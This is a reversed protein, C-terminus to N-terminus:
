GEALLRAHLWGFGSAVPWNPTVSPITSVFSVSQISSPNRLCTSLIGLGVHGQTYSMSFSEASWHTVGTLVVKIGDALRASPFTQHHRALPPLHKGEPKLQTDLRELSCLKVVKETKQMKKLPSWGATFGRKLCSPKRHIDLLALM